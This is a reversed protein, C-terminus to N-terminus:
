PKDRSGGSRYADSGLHWNCTNGDPMQECRCSDDLLEVMPRRYVDEQTRVLQVDDVRLEEMGDGMLYPACGVYDELQGVIQKIELSSLPNSRYYHQLCLWQQREGRYRVCGRSLTVLVVAPQSCFRCVGYPADTVMDDEARM